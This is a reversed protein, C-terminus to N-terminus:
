GFMYVVDSAGTPYASVTDKVQEAGMNRRLALAFLNIVEEAHPGVLHAGRMADTDGDVQTKHDYVPEAARAARFLLRLAPTWTGNSPM